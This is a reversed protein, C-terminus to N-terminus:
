EAGHRRVQFEDFSPPEPATHVPYEYAEFVPNSVIEVRPYIQHSNFKGQWALSYGAELNKVPLTGGQYDGDVVPTPTEPALEFYEWDSEVLQNNKLYESRSKVKITTTNM